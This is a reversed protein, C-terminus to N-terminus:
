VKCLWRIFACLYHKMKSQLVAMISVAAHKQILLLLFLTAMLTVLALAILNLSSSIATGEM